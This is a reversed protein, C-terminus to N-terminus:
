YAIRQLIHRGYQYTRLAMAQPIARITKKTGFYLIALILNLTASFALLIVALIAKRKSCSFQHATRDLWSGESHHHPSQDDDVPLLSYEQEKM